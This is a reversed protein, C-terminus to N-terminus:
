LVISYWHETRLQTNKDCSGIYKTPVGVTSLHVICNFYLLITNCMKLSKITINCKATLDILIFYTANNYFAPQKM